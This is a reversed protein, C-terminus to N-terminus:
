FNQVKPLTEHLAFYAQSVTDLVVPLLIRGGGEERKAPTYASLLFQGRQDSCIQRTEITSSSAPQLTNRGWFWKPWAKRSYLVDTYSEFVCDSTWQVKMFRRPDLGETMSRLKDYIRELAQPSIAAARGLIWAMV